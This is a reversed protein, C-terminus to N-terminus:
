AILGSIFREELGGPSEVGRRCLLHTEKLNLPMEHTKLLSCISRAEPNQLLDIIVM